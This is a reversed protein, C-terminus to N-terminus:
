SSCTLIHTLNQWTVSLDARCSPSDSFQHWMGIRYWYSTNDFFPISINNKANFLRQHYKHFLSRLNRQCTFSWYTNNYFTISIFQIPCWYESINWELVHKKVDNSQLKWTHEDERQNGILKNIYVPTYKELKLFLLNPLSYEFISIFLVNLGLSAYIRRQVPDDTTWIIAQRQFITLQVKLFLSWHFKLRFEFMENLFNCKFVDDAFHHRHKRPRLSNISVAFLTIFPLLQKMQELLLAITIDHTHINQFGHSCTKIAWISKIFGIAITNIMLLCNNHVTSENHGGPILATWM